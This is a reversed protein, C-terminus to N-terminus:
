SSSDQAANMPDARQIQTGLVTSLAVVDSWLSQRLDFLATTSTLFANQMTFYPAVGLDGAHYAAGANKITARLRPMDAEIDQIELQLQTMEDWLQWADATALDLRAQYEARLQDRTARQVAIEGRGRDFLPLNLTVGLGITHVDSTDRAKTFGVSINPFQSLVAKHLLQEQGEYGAQLARLDPRLRSLQAVAGEVAAREPVVPAPLPQLQVAVDPALGLLARLAHDAQQATRQATGMQIRVDTLLAVDVGSQDLTVDGSQLARGSRQAQAAYAQEAAVLVQRKQAGIVGVVYLTRAQAVTQWEQWLLELRAQDRAANAAASKNSQTLLAQLDLSLGLGYADILDGGHDTPHEFAASLQPDPLLGAAFAQAEAVQTKVRAAKLDPNNLVAITAVGDMDLPQVNTAAALDPEEPLPLRSYSECGCLAVVICAAAFGVRVRWGASNARGIRSLSVKRPHQIDGALRRRLQQMQRRNKGDM